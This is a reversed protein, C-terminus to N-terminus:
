RKISVFTSQPQRRQNEFFRRCPGFIIKPRLSEVMPAAWQEELIVQRPRNRASMWAKQNDALVWRAPLIRPGDQDSKEAGNSQSAAPSNFVRAACPTPKRLCAAVSAERRGHQPPRAEELIWWKRHSARNAEMNCVLRSNEGLSCGQPVRRRQFQSRENRQPVRNEQSDAWSNRFERCNSNSSIERVNEVQRSWVRDRRV